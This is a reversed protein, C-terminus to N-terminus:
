RCIRNLESECKKYDRSRESETAADFWIKYGECCAWINGPMRSALRDLGRKFGNRDGAEMAKLGLEDLGNQKATEIQEKTVEM